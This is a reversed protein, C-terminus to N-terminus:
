QRITFQYSGSGLKYVASGDEVRLFSVGEAKDAPKGGETVAEDSDAPAHFTATMNAPVTLNLELAEGSEKWDVEIRGRVSNYSGRAWTLGGGPRPRLIVNGYGPSSEDPNIGLITRYVWEGVAGIAYHNFSNMGPDHFGRGEVYGDWREWITTAGQEISYGWSPLTRHNILQYAIDDRGARTLENMLRVTTHFGTSMHGDYAEVAAVMHAAAAERREKPVLNMSLALAYGAQTEGEIKGDDRVYAKIFAERIEDALRRYKKADEERGIVEAMRAVRDTSHQFFATALLDKPVEANIRPLGQGELNFTNANLWDGYDNNRNNKWLLGPNHAHIWDVWRRASEFHTELLRRDGYNVYLQWPITVGADGWAPAGSFRANSDFPHPAFDPYRGDDAQDDRLDRLWKTLFAAMDMKFCATEGFALIDGTWGMREDRQPCDTPISHLNSRLTWLVNRMIRNILEGSCEFRGALRPASHFVRGVVDDTSPKTPLGAIELYRFGHYTFHPEYTEDGRGRSIYQDEQRAGYPGGLAGMRLNDRYITGDPNLVEAHRLRVATGEPANIRLRCWGAFNQGFDVVYVGPTPETIAKPRLEETVRIPENRQAVLTIDDRRPTVDVNKWAADDFGAADWGDMERRADYVEGDLLCAKRIPGETTVKWGADTVITETGGDDYRVDLQVLLKPKRGYFGRVPDKDQLIHSIGLRGAYWGDGVMAGVANKGSTLLETVDYAQYQVRRHYNTWEPALIHDGVRRGNIRLEYVGLASVTVVARRIPRTLEFEKRFTPAPLPVREDPLPAPDSIWQAKWDSPALMGVRWRAPASWPSAQDHNTWVRVKWFVEQGASLPRGDYVIHVAQDSEVRGSDWLDGEDRDLREASSAALVQWATQLTARRDSELIWSLRPRALDIALPDTLYECRLSTPKVDAM